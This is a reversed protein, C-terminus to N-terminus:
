KGAKGTPINFLVAPKGHQFARDVRFYGLREFQIIDDEALEAVNCDALATTRFETQKTLFDDVNDEEELKDKTILYDFDVLEVPILEQGEKSLWTIKQKTKKVDGQLHLELELGTVTSRHLPNLSHSIKRVIANGWNMLTIEEDQAFAQADSQSILISPSYAVKKSGLEPNKGHKPKNETYAAVRAGKVTATVVNDEHVATHRPAVPDIYKKNTAWFLTWDLNVINRSPGQKLIFERLAAITMGRRRIGRITPFRPDDWGWVIGQDVFKTLKRKSLLTRIFNMRAFDWIHVKRLNLADLMWEYQPNRDRYEITRLAHTVGEMSDVIPCCFDYTPYVKWKNGTRHHPLPNCRYIVPDRMAKNPNDVSMKARICWKIGEESGEKMAEFHALNTEVTADRRKSAIGNMRESRMVELETDDAYAKGAKLMTVCYQYLEEFYDSTYSTKDPHIGMLALDEVIADQFEEREKSPNTDDFRCLLTGGYKEHAFYDNLLAAKAHGIHLYGSPEPPFRTIVGKETDPLAIEFSGGEKSKAAKKEQAHANLAHVAEAIWPHTEEIFKFWRSINLM